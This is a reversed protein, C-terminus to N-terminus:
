KHVWGVCHMMQVSDVLKKALRFRTGLDITKWQTPTQLIIEDLSAPKRQQSIFGQPMTAPFNTRIHLPPVLVLGYAKSSGSSRKVIGYCDPLLLQTPKVTRLLNARIKVKHYTAEEGDVGVDIWEILVIRRQNNSPFNFLLAMTSAGTTSLSYGPNIVFDSMSFVPVAVKKDGGKVVSSFKAAREIECYPASWQSEVAAHRVEYGAAEFIQRLQDPSLAVLFNFSTKLLRGLDPEPGFTRLNVMYEKLLEILHKWNAGEDKLVFECKRIFSMNRNCRDKFSEIASKGSLDEWKM